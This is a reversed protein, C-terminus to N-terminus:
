MAWVATGSFLGHTEARAVKLAELWRFPMWRAPERRQQQQQRRNWDGGRFRLQKRFLDVVKTVPQRLMYEALRARVMATRLTTVTTSSWSRTSRTNWGNQATDRTLDVVATVM